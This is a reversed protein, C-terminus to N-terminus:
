GFAMQRLHDVRLFLHHPDTPSELFTAKSQYFSVAADDLAHILVARFGIDLSVKACRRLADGLLRGGLGRGQVRRDVALRALLLVPVPDPPNRRVAGPAVGPECGGAALAYFGQVVAGSTAVYTTANGVRQGELARRRLWKDLEDVGCDFEDLRHHETLRPLEPIDALDM